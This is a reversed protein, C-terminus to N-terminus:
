DITTENPKTREQDKSIDDTPKQTNRSRNSVRRNIRRRSNSSKPKIVDQTNNGDLPNDLAIQESVSTDLNNLTSNINTIEEPQPQDEKELTKKKPTRWKSKTENISHQHPEEQYSTAASQLAPRSMTSLNQTTKPLKIKEISYTDCTTIPDCNFNIKINYKEEIYSIEKRKNNLLYIVPSAHAYVNLIDIKDNFIENEITRLILMANSEDARVLGKGNCHSCISSNSELFSPRIRQRSMELLGFISIGTTQVRAKDRSLYEKLSREIIKRHRGEEMDIFDIIILGSLDRLKVQRSIEKAAELNTKLATEEINRESTAKGSNVDISILAETPNIVIYGGSPLSVIPQYLNSLQDEVSFKTFIPIKNKYEKVKDVEAPLIDKMFKLASQYADSGQIILEQVTHNFIDRITKQIIGEEEHIFCPATSRLTTERIKNWLRVLYDCDRKIELTTHGIAATRAIISSLGKENNSNQTLQSIINKLRRREDANSIKRSVGNQLSKNPMLVCYKGALSIYTTFSAGKNGREEKTVQVLLVQGKKMVEQIKYKKHHANENKDASIGEIDSDSSDIDFESQTKEDILQEIAKLDLEDTDSVNYTSSRPTEALDASTINPPTIAKLNTISSKQDSVPIHYYDPHIESFPLFGSKDNGYDIFAVQLSPEIRTIKALYINGKNQQKISTEYEIDEINNTNSLLVVRTENPFNADIIIKKSM